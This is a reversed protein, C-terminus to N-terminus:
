FSFSAGRSDGSSHLEALVKIKAWFVWEPSRVELVTLYDIYTTLLWWQQPLKKYCSYFIFEHRKVQCGHGIFDGRGGDVVM